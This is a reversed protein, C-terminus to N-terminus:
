SFLKLVAVLKLLFDLVHRCAPLVLMVILRVLVWQAYRGRGAALARRYEELEEPLVAEVHTQFRAPSMVMRLLEVLGSVTAPPAPAIPARTFKTATSSTITLKSQGVVVIQKTPIQDCPPGMYQILAFDTVTQIGNLLASVSDNVQQAIVTPVTRLECDLQSLNWRLALQADRLRIDISRRLEAVGDAPV